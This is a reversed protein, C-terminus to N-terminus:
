SEIRIFYCRFIPWACLNSRGRGEERFQQKQIKEVAEFSSQEACLSM